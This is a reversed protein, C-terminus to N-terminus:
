AGRDRGARGSLSECCTDRLLELLDRGEHDPHHQLQHVARGPEGRLGLLLGGSPIGFHAGGAAAAALSRLQV